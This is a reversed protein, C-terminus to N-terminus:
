RKKGTTAPMTMKRLNGQLTVLEPFPQYDAQTKLFSCSDSSMEQSGIPRGNRFQSVTYRTIQRGSLDIGQWRTCVEYSSWASGLDYFGASRPKSVSAEVFTIGPNRAMVAIALMSRLQPTLAPRTPDNPDAMSTPYSKACGGLLLGLAGIILLKKM